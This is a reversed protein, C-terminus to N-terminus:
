IFLIKLFNFAEKVIIKISINPVLIGERLQVPTMNIAYRSRSVLKIFELDFLYRNIRTQLFTDKLKSNFGKLGTQTDSIPIKTLFKILGKLFNSIFRRQPPIKASYSKDRKGVILDGEHDLLATIVNKISKQDYPFDVDTFIIYEASSQRLGHRLAYGKGMNQDYTYVKFNPSLNQLSASESIKNSISGDEVIIV